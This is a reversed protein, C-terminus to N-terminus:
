KCINLNSFMTVILIFGFLTKCGVASFCGGNSFSVVVSNCSSSGASKSQRNGGDVIAVMREGLKVSSSQVSRIFKRLAISSRGGGVLLLM